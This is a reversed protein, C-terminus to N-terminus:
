ILLDFTDFRRSVMYYCCLTEEYRGFSREGVGVDFPAIVSEDEPQQVMKPFVLCAGFMYIYICILPLLQQQDAALLLAFFSSTENSLCFV